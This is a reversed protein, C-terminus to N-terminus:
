PANESKIFPKRSEPEEYIQYYMDDIISELTDETMTKEKLISAKSVLMAMAIAEPNTINTDFIRRTKNSFLMRGPIWCITVYITKLSM